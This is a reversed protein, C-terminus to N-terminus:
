CAASRIEQTQQLQFAERGIGSLDTSDDVILGSLDLNASGHAGEVACLRKARRRTNEFRRSQSSGTPFNGVAIEFGKEYPIRPV